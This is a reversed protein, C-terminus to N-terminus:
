FDVIAWPHCLISRFLKICHSGLAKNNRHAKVPTHVMYSERNSELEQKGVLM